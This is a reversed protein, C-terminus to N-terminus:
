SIKVETKAVKLEQLTKICDQMLSEQKETKRWDTSNLKQRAVTLSSGIMWRYISGSAQSRALAKDSEARARLRQLENSATELIRDSTMKAESPAAKETSLAEAKSEELKAQAAKLVNQAENFKNNADELSSLISRRREDLASTLADGVLTVVVGIVITLNILNTDFIDTNFGIELAQEHVLSWMIVGGKILINLHPKLFFGRGM